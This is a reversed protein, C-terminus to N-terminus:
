PILYFHFSKQYSLLCVHACLYLTRTYRVRRLIKDPHWVRRDVNSIGFDLVHLLFINKKTKLFKSKKEFKELGELNGCLQVYKGVKFKWNL